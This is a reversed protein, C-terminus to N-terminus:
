SISVLLALRLQGLGAAPAARGLHGGGLEVLFGQTASVIMGSLLTTPLASM